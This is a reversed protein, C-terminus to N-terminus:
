AGALRKLLEAYLSEAETAWGHMVDYTSAYDPMRLRMEFIPEGRELIALTAMCGGNPLPVAEAVIYNDRRYGARHEAAFASIAERISKPIEKSFLACAGDGKATLFLMQKGRVPVSAIFGEEELRSYQEGIDFFGPGDIHVITEYLQERTISTRFERIIYLIILKTRDDGGSFFAM